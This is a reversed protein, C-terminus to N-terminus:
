LMRSTKHHKMLQSTKLTLNPLFTSPFPRLRITNAWVFFLFDGICSVRVYKLSMRDIELNNMNPEQNPKSGPVQQICALSM